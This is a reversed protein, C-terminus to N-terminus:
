AEICTDEHLVDCRCCVFYEKAMQRYAERGETIVEIYEDVSTSILTSEQPTAHFRIKRCIMDKPNANWGRSPISCAAGWTMAMNMTGICKM